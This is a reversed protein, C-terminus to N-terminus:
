RRRSGKTRHHHALHPERGCNPQTSFCPLSIMENWDYNEKGSLAWLAIRSSFNNQVAARLEGAAPDRM